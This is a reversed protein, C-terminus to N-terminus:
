KKRLFESCGTEIDSICTAMFIFMIDWQTWQHYKCSNWRTIKYICVFLFKIILIVQCIHALKHKLMGTNYNKCISASNRTSFASLGPWAITSTACFSFAVNTTVPVLPIPLNRRVIIPLTLSKTTWWAWQGTKTQLCLSLYVYWHGVCQGSTSWEDLACLIIHATVHYSTVYLSLM